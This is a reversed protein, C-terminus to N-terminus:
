VLRSRESNCLYQSKKKKWCSCYSLTGRVVSRLLWQRDGWSGPSGQAPKTLRSCSVTLPAVPQGGALGSADLYTILSQNALESYITNKHQIQLLLGQIIAYSKGFNVKQEQCTMNLKSNIPFLRGSYCHCGLFNFPDSCM